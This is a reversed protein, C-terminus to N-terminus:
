AGDEDETEDDDEDEDEPESADDDEEAERPDVDPWVEQAAQVARAGDGILEDVAELAEARHKGKPDEEPVLFHGLAADLAATAMALAGRCAALRAMVYDRAATREEAKTM